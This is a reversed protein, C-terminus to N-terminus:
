RARQGPLHPLGSRSNQQQLNKTSNPRKHALPDMVGVNPNAGFVKNYNQERNVLELKFTQLQAALQTLQATKEQVEQTLQAIRELDEDRSPRNEYLAQLEAYQDELVAIQQELLRQSEAFQAAM